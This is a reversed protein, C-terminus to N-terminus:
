VILLLHAERTVRLVTKDLSNRWKLDLCLTKPNDPVEWYLCLCNQLTPSEELGRNFRDKYRSM